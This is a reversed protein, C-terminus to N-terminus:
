GQQQSRKFRWCFVTGWSPMHKGIGYIKNFDIFCVSKQFCRNCCYKSKKSDIEDQNELDTDSSDIIKSLAKSGRLLEKTESIKEKHKM